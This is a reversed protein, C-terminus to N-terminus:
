ADTSDRVTACKAGDKLYSMLGSSNWRDWGAVLRGEKCRMWSMGSVKVRRNTAPIGLTDGGHTAEFTWRIAASDGDAIIDDVTVRLDPFAGMLPSHLKQIFETHGSVRGGETEGVAEPHLLENLVAPNRQNWLVEFWRRVIAKIDQASGVSARTSSKKKPKPSKVPRRQGARLKPHSRSKTRKKM